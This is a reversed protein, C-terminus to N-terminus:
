LLKPCHLLCMETARVSNYLRLDWIKSTRRCRYQVGATLPLKRSIFNRGWNMLSLRSSDMISLTAKLLLCSDKDNGCITPFMIEASECPFHIKPCGSTRCFMTFIMMTLLLFFLYLHQLIPQPLSILDAMVSVDPLTMRM